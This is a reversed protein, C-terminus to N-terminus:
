VQSGLKCKTGPDFREYSEGGISGLSPGMLHGGGGITDRSAGGGGLGNERKM